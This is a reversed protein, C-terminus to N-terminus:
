ASRHRNVASVVAKLSATLISEDLGVGWRVSGDAGKAEVYAAATADTGASVAHETYDVVDIEIGLDDRLANVFASIPGGGEGTVTRPAGDVVLQATVRSREANTTAEATRFVLGGSNAASEAAADASGDAAGDSGQTLYASEFAQWMLSPSIETGTDEAVGQIAKSFEIQLRRPLDLGYEAKMVYAVGGM